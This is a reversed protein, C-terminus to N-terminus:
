EVIKGRKLGKKDLYIEINLRNNKKYTTKPNFPIRDTKGAFTGGIVKVDILFLAWQLGNTTGTIRHKSDKGGVVSVKYTGVDLVSESTGGIVAYNKDQVEKLYESQKVNTDFSVFPALKNSM